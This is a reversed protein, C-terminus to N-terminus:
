SACFPGGFKRNRLVPLTPEGIHCPFAPDVLVVVAVAEGRGPAIVIRIAPGFQVDRVIEAPVVQILVIALRNRSMAASAPTSSMPGPM